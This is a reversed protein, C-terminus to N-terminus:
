CQQCRQGRFNANNFTCRVAGGVRQEATVCWWCNQTGILECSHCLQGWVYPICLWVMNLKKSLCSTKCSFTVATPVNDRLRRQQDSLYTKSESRRFHLKFTASTENIKKVWGITFMLFVFTADAIRSRGRNWLFLWMQAFVTCMWNILTIYFTVNLVVSDGYWEPEYYSRGKQISPYPLLDVYKFRFRRIQDYWTFLISLIFSLVRLYSWIKIM